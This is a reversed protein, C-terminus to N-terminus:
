GLAECLRRACGGLRCLWLRVRCSPSGLCAHVYGVRGTPGPCPRAFRLCWCCGLQGCWIGALAHVLGPFASPPVPLGGRSFFPPSPPVIFAWLWSVTCGCWLLRGFGRALCCRFCSGGFLCRLVVWGFGAVSFRSCRGVLLLSGMFVCVCVMSPRLHFPFVFFVCFRLGFSIPIRFPSWSVWSRSLWRGVGCLWSLVHWLAGGGFVFVFPLPPPLGWGCSCGCVGM